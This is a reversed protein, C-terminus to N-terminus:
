LKLNDFGKPNKEVEKIPEPFFPTDTFNLKEFYPKEM